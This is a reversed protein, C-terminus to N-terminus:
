RIPPVIRLCAEGNVVLVEELKACLKHSRAQETLDLDLDLDLDPWNTNDAYKCILVM